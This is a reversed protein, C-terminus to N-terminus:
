AALPKASRARTLLAERIVQLGQGACGLLMTTRHRGQPRLDEDLQEAILHFDRRALRLEEFADLVQSVDSLSWTNTDSPMARLRDIVVHLNTLHVHVGTVDVRSSLLLRGYGPLEWVRNRMRYIRTSPDAVRAMMDCNSEILRASSCSKLSLPTGSVIACDGDGLPAGQCWQVVTDTNMQLAVSAADVSQSQKSVYDASALDFLLGESLTETFYVLVTGEDVQAPIEQPWGSRYVRLRGSPVVVLASKATRPTVTDHPSDTLATGSAKLGCLFAQAEGESRMSLDILQMAGQGPMAWVKNEQTMHGARESRLGLLFGQTFQQTLLDQRLESLTMSTRGLRLFDNINMKHKRQVMRRRLRPPQMRM